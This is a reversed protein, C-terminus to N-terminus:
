APRASPWPPAPGASIIGPPAASDKALLRACLHRLAPGPDVGLQESIADRARGYVELAEAHRRAGDLARMLLLWLGERLPYDALLRGIEPVAQAYGGCGLEATIRREM